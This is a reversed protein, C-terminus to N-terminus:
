FLSPVTLYQISRFFTLSTVTVSIYGNGLILSHISAKAPQSYKKKNPYYDINLTWYAIYIFYSNLPSYVFHGIYNLAIHGCYPLFISHCIVSNCVICIHATNVNHM